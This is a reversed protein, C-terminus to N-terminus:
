MRCVHTCIERMYFRGTCLQTHKVPASTPGIHRPLFVDHPALLDSKTSFRRSGAAVARSQFVSRLM